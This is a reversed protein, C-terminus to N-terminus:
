LWAGTKMHYKVQLEWEWRALCALWKDPGNYLTYTKNNYSGSAAWYGNFDNIIFTVGKVGSTNTKRIDRQNQQQELPTAWRCNFKYYGWKNNIRDLTKGEPREGMDALFRDYSDWNPDYVIGKYTDKKQKCREKMQLWSTYTPKHAGKRLQM